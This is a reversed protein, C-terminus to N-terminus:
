QTLGERLAKIDEANLSDMNHLYCLAFHNNNWISNAHDLLLSLDRIERKSLTVSSPIEFAM